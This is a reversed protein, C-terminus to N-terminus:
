TDSGDNIRQGDANTDIGGGDVGADDFPRIQRGDTSAGMQVTASSESNTETFDHQEQLNMLERVRAVQPLASFHVKMLLGRGDLSYDTVDRVGPIAEIKARAAAKDVGPVLYAEITLDRSDADKRSLRPRVGTDPAIKLAPEVPLIAKVGPMESVARIQGHDGYVMLTANPLNGVIRAHQQIGDLLSDVSSRSIAAEDLMIYHLGGDKAIAGRDTKVLDGPAFRLNAPVDALLLEPNDPRMDGLPTRITGRADGKALRPNLYKGGFPSLESPRAHADPLVRSAIFRTEARLKQLEAASMGEDTSPLQAKSAWILMAPSALMLAFGIIVLIRTSKAGPAFLRNM